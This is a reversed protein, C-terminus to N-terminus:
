EQDIMRLRHQPHVVAVSTMIYLMMQTVHQVVINGLVMSGNLCTTSESLDSTSKEMRHWRCTSWLCKCGCTLLWNYSDALKCHSVQSRSSAHLGLDHLCTRTGGSACLGSWGLSHGPQTLFASAAQGRIPAQCQVKTPLMKCYTQSASQQQRITDARNVSLVLSLNLQTLPILAAGAVGAHLSMLVDQCGM